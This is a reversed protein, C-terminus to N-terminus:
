GGRVQQIASTVIEEIEDDNKGARQVAARPNLRDLARQGMGRKLAAIAVEDVSKGDARAAAEVAARLDDPLGTITFDAMGNPRMQNDRWDYHWRWHTDSVISTNPHQGFWSDATAEAGFQPELWGHKPHDIRFASDNLGRDFCSEDITSFPPGVTVSVQRSFVVRALLGL